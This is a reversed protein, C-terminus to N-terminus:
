SLNFSVKINSYLTFLRLHKRLLLLLLHHPHTGLPILILLILPLHLLVIELLLIQHLLLHIGHALLKRLIHDTGDLDLITKEDSIRESGLVLLEHDCVFHGMDDVACAFL